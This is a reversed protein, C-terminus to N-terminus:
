NWFCWGDILVGVAGDPLSDGREAHLAFGAPSGGCVAFYVAQLTKESPPLSDSLFSASSIIRRISSPYLPSVSRRLIVSALSIRLAFSSDAAVGEVASAILFVEEESVHYEFFDDESAFVSLTPTLLAFIVTVLSLIRRLYIM